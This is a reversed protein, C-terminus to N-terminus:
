SNTIAPRKCNALAWESWYLLWKMRERNYDDPPLRKKAARKFQALHDATLDCHGPHSAFLEKFLESLGYAQCFEAWGSYSPWRANTYDTPDGSAPAEAHKANEITLRGCKNLPGTEGIKIIYGM